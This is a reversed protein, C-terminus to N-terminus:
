SKTNSKSGRTEQNDKNLIKEVNSVQRYLEDSNKIMENLNIALTMLSSKFIEAAHKFDSILNPKNKIPM